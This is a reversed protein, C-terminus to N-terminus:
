PTDPPRIGDVRWFAATSGTLTVRRLVALFPQRQGGAELEIMAYDTDRDRVIRCRKVRLKESERIAEGFQLMTEAHFFADLQDIAEANRQYHQALVSDDVRDAPALTWQHAEEIRGQRVLGVWDVLVRRAERSLLLQRSVHKAPTLLGFFLALSLGLLIMGRGVYGADSSIQRLGAWAAMIAALPFAWLLPHALALASLMGLVLTLPAWRSVAHYTDMEISEPLTPNTQQAAM